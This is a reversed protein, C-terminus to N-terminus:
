KSYYYGTVRDWYADEQAQIYNSLSKDINDKLTSEILYIKKSKPDYNCLDGIYIKKGTAACFGPYMAKIKKM